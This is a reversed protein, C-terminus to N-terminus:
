ESQEEKDRSTRHRLLIQYCTRCLGRHANEAANSCFDVICKKAPASQREEPAGVLDPTQHDSTVLHEVTPQPDNMARCTSRFAMSENACSTKGPDGARTNHKSGHRGKVKVSKDRVHESELIHKPNALEQTNKVRISKQTDTIETEVITDKHRTTDNLDNAKRSDKVSDAVRLERMKELTPCTLEEEKNMFEINRLKEEGKSVGLWPDKVVYCTYCRGGYKQSGEKECQVNECRTSRKGRVSGAESESWPRTNEGKRQEARKITQCAICNPVCGGEFRSTSGTLPHLGEEAEGDSPAEDTVLSSESFPKTQLVPSSSVRESEPSEPLPKVTSLRCTLVQLPGSPTTHSIEAINLYSLLLHRM